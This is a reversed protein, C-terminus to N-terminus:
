NGTGKWQVVTRLRNLRCVPPVLFPLPFLETTLRVRSRVAEPELGTLLPRLIQKQKKFSFFLLVYNFFLYICTHIYIHINYIYIYVVVAVVFGWRM